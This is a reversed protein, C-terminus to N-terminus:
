CTIFLYQDALSVTEAPVQFSSDCASRKTIIVVSM